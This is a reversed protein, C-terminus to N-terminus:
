KLELSGLLMFCLNLDWPFECVLAMSETVAVDVGFDRLVGVVAAPM